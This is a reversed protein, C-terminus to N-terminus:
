ILGSFYADCAKKLLQINLNPTINLYRAIDMLQEVIDRPHCSRASLNHKLYYEQYIHTLASEEFVIGKIRCIEKFIRRYEDPSPDEVKIKHRIRRLFAEEVLEKPNLNTSFIVLTEFPVEIKKGTRLSLYDVRKEMPIIWRNLFLRPHEQQRGFDDIVFIGGGAKMQFPAEYYKLHDHYILNLSMLTLEGGTIIFPRKVAVWRRDYSNNRRPEMGARNDEGNAYVPEHNVYDFVKIIQNDVEVAYPIYINDEFMKSIAEAIMTKGNGTHGFLFISRASNVAPGIEGLIEESLVMHALAQRLKDAPIVEKSLSQALVAKCYANLSVPAPGAYGCSALVERAKEGGKSTIGYQYSSEGFNKSGKVECFQERRLFELAREVIDSFPLRVAQAIESGSIYRKFYIVKIVLDVILGLDLGTEEISAPQPPKYGSSDPFQESSGEKLKEM